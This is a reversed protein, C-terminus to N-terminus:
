EIRVFRGKSSVGGRGLLCVHSFDLLFPVFKFRDVWGMGDLADRFHKISKDSAVSFCREAEIRKRREFWFLRFIKCCVSVDLVSRAFLNRIKRSSKKSSKRNNM